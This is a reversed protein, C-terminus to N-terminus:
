PISEDASESLLLAPMSILALAGSETPEPM